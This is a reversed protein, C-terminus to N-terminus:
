HSAKEIIKELAQPEMRMTMTMAVVMYGVAKFENEDLRDLLENLAALAESRDKSIL